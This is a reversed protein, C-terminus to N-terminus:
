ISIITLWAYSKVIRSLRLRLVFVHYLCALHRRYRIIRYIQGYFKDYQSNDLLDQFIEGVELWNICWTICQCGYLTLPATTGFRRTSPGHIAAKAVELTYFIKLKFNSNGSLLSFFAKGRAFLNKAKVFHRIRWLWNERDESTVAPPM